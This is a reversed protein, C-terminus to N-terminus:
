LRFPAHSELPLKRLEKEGLSRVDITEMLRPIITGRSISAASKNLETAVNWNLLALLNGREDCGIWTGGSQEQPAVFNTRGSTIFLDSLAAPRWRLEDRNMAALYGNETTVITLTCM